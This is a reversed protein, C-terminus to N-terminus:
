QEIWVPLACGLLLYIHSLILVGEDKSDLFPTYYHDLWKKLSPPAELLRCIELLVFAMLAVGM